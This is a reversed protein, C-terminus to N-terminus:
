KKLAYVNLYKSCCKEITFEDFSKIANDRIHMVESPSLQCFYKLANYYGEVSVDQSLLGNIGNKIINRCGGVPTCIPICGVSFAEIVSMPLGEMKSSLCMADADAMLARVNDCEGLYSINENFMKSLSVFLKSYIKTNGVWILKADPFEKTLRKFADVLMKQNKVPQCSAPHIFIKGNGTNRILTNKYNSVGNPIIVTPYGYYEEFSKESEESITVPVCLNRKFMFKRSFKDLSKGAERKAESHITAVFRTKKCYISALVIYKIAGIHAHVVDYKKKKIFRILRFLISPRFGNSKNFTYVEIGNHKLQKYLHSDSVDYLTLVDCKINRKNLALSLESVMTEAGGSALTPIIQLIKM